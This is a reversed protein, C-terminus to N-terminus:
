SVREAVIEALIAEVCVGNTHPALKEIEQVCITLADALAFHTRALEVPKLHEALRKAAYLQIAAAAVHQLCATAPDIAPVPTRTVDNM